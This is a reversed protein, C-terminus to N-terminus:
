AAPRVWPPRQRVLEPHERLHSRLDVATKWLVLLALMSVVPSILLIALILGALSANRVQRARVQRLGRKLPAIIPPIRLPEGKLWAVARLFFAIILLPSVVFLVGMALIGPGERLLILLAGSFAAAMVLLMRKFPAQLLDEPTQGEYERGGLYNHFFSVGHSVAFGVGCWGLAKLFDRFAQEGLHQNDYLGGIIVGPMLMFFYFMIVFMPIYLLAKWRAVLVLKIVNYLGIVVCEVLYSFLIYYVDWGLFLVGALPLVNALMLAMVSPERLFVSMQSRTLV